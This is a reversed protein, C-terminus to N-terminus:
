ALAIISSVIRVASTILNLTKGIKQENELMTKIENQTNDLHNRLFRLQPENDRFIKEKAAAYNMFAVQYASRLENRHAESECRVFLSNFNQEILFYTEQIELFTKTDSM